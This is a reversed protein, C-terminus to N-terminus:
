PNRFSGLVPTGACTGNALCKENEDWAVRSTCNNGVLVPHSCTGDSECVNSTCENLDDCSLDACDSAIEVTYPPRGGGVVISMTNNSLLEYSSADSRCVTKRVLQPSNRIESSEDKSRDYSFCSSGRPHDFLM